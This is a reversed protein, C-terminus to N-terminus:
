VKTTSHQTSLFHSPPCTPKRKSTYFVEDNHEYTVTDGTVVIKLNDGAAGDIDDPAAFAQEFAVVSGDRGFEGGDGICIAYEISNDGVGTCPAYSPAKTRSAL